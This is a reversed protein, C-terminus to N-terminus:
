AAQPVTTSSAPMRSRLLIAECGIGNPFRQWEPPRPLMPTPKLSVPRPARPPAAAAYALARLSTTSAAAAFLHTELDLFSCTPAFHSM